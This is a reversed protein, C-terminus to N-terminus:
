YDAVEKLTVTSPLKLSLVVVDEDALRMNWRNETMTYHIDNDMVFEQSIDWAEDQADRFLSVPQTFAMTPVARYWKYM